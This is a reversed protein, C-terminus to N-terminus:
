RLFDSNVFSKFPRIQIDGHSWTWTGPEQTVLKFPPSLKTYNDIHYYGKPQGLHLTLGLENVNHQQKSQNKSELVATVCM